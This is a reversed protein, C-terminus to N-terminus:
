SVFDRLIRALEDADLAIDQYFAEATSTPKPGHPISIIPKYLLDCVDSIWVFARTGYNRPFVEIVKTGPACFLLNALAAGHLGVVHTSEAFIRAQQDFPLGGPDVIEFGYHELIKTHREYDILTRRIGPPRTVFIKRSRLEGRYGLRAKLPKAYERSGGQLRSIFADASSTLFVLDKVRYAGEKLEVPTESSFRIGARAMTAWQFGVLGHCQLGIPMGSFLEAAWSLRPMHDTLWICYNGNNGRHPDGDFFLEPLSARFPLNLLEEGTFKGPKSTAFAVIAGYTDLVIFGEKSVGLTADRVRVAEVDRSSRGATRGACPHCLGTFWEDVRSSFAHGPAILIRDVM